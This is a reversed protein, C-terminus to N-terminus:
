WVRGHGQIFSVSGGDGEEDATESCLVSTDAASIGRTEGMNAAAKFHNGFMDSMCREVEPEEEEGEGERARDKHESTQAFSADPTEKKNGTRLPGCYIRLNWFGFDTLDM